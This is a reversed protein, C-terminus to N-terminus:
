PSDHQDEGLVDFASPYVLRGRVSAEYTSLRFIQAAEAPAWDPLTIEIGHPVSWEFGLRGYYHPDGELTVLPLGRRDARRLVEAVLARGIGSRQVSPHVALPALSGVPVRSGERDVEAISVMVHGVIAGDLEAVLALEDIYSDSGRIAAVLRSELDRGFAAAVVSAIAAVDSPAESRILLGRPASGVSRHQGIAIM